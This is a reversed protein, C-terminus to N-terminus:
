FQIKGLGRTYSSIANGTPRSKATLRALATQLEKDLVSVAANIQSGDLGKINPITALAADQSQEFIGLLYSVGAIPLNRSISAAGAELFGRAAVGKSVQRATIARKQMNLQSGSRSGRKGEGKKLAGLPTFIPGPGSTATIPKGYLDVTSWIGAPVIWTPRPSGLDIKLESGFFRVTANATKPLKFVKGNDRTRVLRDKAREGAGFNLRAWQRAKSNLWQPDGFIIGDKTAQYMNPSALAARLVGGADRKYPEDAGARYKKDGRKEHTEDYRRLMAKQGEQAVRTNIKDVNQRWKQEVARSYVNAIHSIALATEGAGTAQATKFYEKIAFAAVYSIGEMIFTTDARGTTYGSGTRPPM